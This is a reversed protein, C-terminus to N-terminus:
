AAVEELPKDRKPTSRDFLAEVYFKDMPDNCIRKFECGRCNSDKANRIPYRSGSDLDRIMEAASILELGAEDLEGPRFLIPFRQQWVRQGLALKTEPKPEVDCEECLLLYSELTCLQDKAHSPAPVKRGATLLRAAKPAVKKREDIIVGYIDDPLGQARQLERLAWAYWRPQRNRQMQEPDQLQTRLKFEVIWQHGEYDVTYGDIFCKFRYKNSFGRGSRAWIPVEIEGELRTLNPFPKATDIYHGLMELLMEEQEVTKAPDPNFGRQHMKALDDAYSELMAKTAVMEVFPDTHAAVHYAAVGAGWARGDSLIPALERRRLSSGALRDSYTLDWSALAQCTMAKTVESFSISRMRHETM